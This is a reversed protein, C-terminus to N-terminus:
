GARWHVCFCVTIILVRSRPIQRAIPASRRSLFPPSFPYVRRFMGERWVRRIQVECAWVGLLRGRLFLRVFGARQRRARIQLFHYKIKKIAFTPRNLLRWASVGSCWSSKPPRLLSLSPASNLLLGFFLTRSYSSVDSISPTTKLSSPPLIEAAGKECFRKSVLLIWLPSFAQRLRQLSM